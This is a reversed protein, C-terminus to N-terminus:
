NRNIYSPVLPLASRVNYYALPAVVALVAAAAFLSNSWSGKPPSRSAAQSWFQRAPGTQRTLTQKSLRPVQAALRQTQRRAAM